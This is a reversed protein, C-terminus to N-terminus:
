FRAGPGGNTCIVNGRISQMRQVHYVYINPVSEYWLLFMIRNALPTREGRLM